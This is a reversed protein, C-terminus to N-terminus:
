KLGNILRGTELVEKLNLDAPPSCEGGGERERERKPRQISKFNM